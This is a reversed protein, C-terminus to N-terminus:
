RQATRLRELQLRHALQVCAGPDDPSLELTLDASQEYSACIELHQRVLRQHWRVHDPINLVPVLASCDPCTAAGDLSSWFETETCRLELFTV